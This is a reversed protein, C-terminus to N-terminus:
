AAVAKRGRPGRPEALPALKRKAEALLRKTMGPGWGDPSDDIRAWRIAKEAADIAARAMLADEFGQVFYGADTLGDAAENFQAPTTVELDLARLATVSKDALDCLEILRAKLLDTRALEDSTPRASERKPKATRMTKRAKMIM